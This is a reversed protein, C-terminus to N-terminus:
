ERTAVAIMNGLKLKLPLHPWPLNVRQKTAAYIGHNILYNLPFYNPSRQVEYVTLGQQALSNALTEPNYLQPHQMCYAPWRRGILKALLSGENHVVFVAVGGKKLKQTIWKLMTAPERLHDLVHIAVIMDLSADPVLPDAEAMASVIQTKLGAASERLRAWVAQNPEILSAEEIPFHKRAEQLFLGVDPGIELYRKPTSAYPITSEVYAQQTLRSLQEDGSHINDGMAGYFEAITADNIYTPAFLLKCANCRHYTFFCSERFFGRWSKAMDAVDLSEAPAVARVAPTATAPGHCNPCARSVLVEPTTPTAIAHALASSM